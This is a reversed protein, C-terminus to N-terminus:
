SKHQLDFAVLRSNKLLCRFESYLYDRLGVYYDLWWFAPWGFVIFYAGTRRQRELERIATDDDPPPGWSQGDRELFPIIRRGSVIDTGWEDNDVLIFSAGVPILREIEQTAVQLRETWTLNLNPVLLHTLQSRYMSLDLLREALWERYSADAARPSQMLYGIADIREAMVALPGTGGASHFHLQFEQGPHSRVQGLEKPIFVIDFRAALRRYLNLDITHKSHRTDFPGVVALASSRMMVTSFKIVWNYGAVIRHLYELGSIVGGAPMEKAHLLQQPSGSIDISRALTFSFAACPHEDLALVSERIFGPLMVDDDHLINLYPSSNVEITRNWNRFLGINTKNRIYTVRSDDFSGVVAETDDSSANDLVVVRFDPYDQALVSELCIRLLQSRNYTPIVVTVKTNSM